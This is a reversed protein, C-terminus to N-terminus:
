DEEGVVIVTDSDSIPLVDDFLATLSAENINEGASDVKVYFYIHLWTGSSLEWETIDWSINRGNGWINPTTDYGDPMDSCSFQVDGDFTLGEPLYDTINMNSLNYHKGGVGPNYISIWFQVREGVSINMTDNVWGTDPDWAQKTLTPLELLTIDADDVGSGSVIIEDPEIYTNNIAAGTPEGEEFLGDDNIDLFAVIYYTGNPIDTFTYDTPFFPSSISINRIPVGPYEDYLIVNLMGTESGYYYITGAIYYTEWFIAFNHSDYNSCGAADYAMATVTYDHGNVWIDSTDYAWEDGGVYYCLLWIPDEQWTEGNYYLDDNQDYIEVYVNTIWSENDYAFININDMDEKVEGEQPDAIMVYPQYVDTYLRIGGPKTINIYYTKGAFIEKLDNFIPPRGYVWSDWDDTPVDYYFVIDFDGYMSFLASEVSNNCSITEPPLSLINWGTNMWQDFVITSEVQIEVPAATGNKGSEDMAYAFLTIRAGNTYESIDIEAIFLGSVDDYTADYWFTPDGERYTWIKVILDEPLTFDDEAYIQVLLTGSHKTGNVPNVFNVIPAGEDHNNTFLWYGYQSYGTNGAPDTDKIIIFHQADM